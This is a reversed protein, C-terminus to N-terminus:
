HGEHSMVFIQRREVHLSSLCIPQWPPSGEFCQTMRDCSRDHLLNLVGHASPETHSAHWPHGFSAIEDRAARSVRCSRLSLVARYALSLPGGLNLLLQPLTSKSVGM